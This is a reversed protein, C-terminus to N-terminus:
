RTVLLVDTQRLWYLLPEGASGTGDGALLLTGAAAAACCGAAIWVSSASDRHVRARGIRDLVAKEVDVTPVPEAAARRGLADLLEEPDRM